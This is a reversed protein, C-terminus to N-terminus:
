STTRYKGTGGSPQYLAGDQCAKEIGHEVEAETADVEAKIDSPPVGDPYDGTNDLRRVASVVQPTVNEITADTGGDAAATAGSDGDSEGGVQPGDDDDDGGSVDVADGMPEETVVARPFELDKMIKLTNVGTCKSVGPTYQKVSEVYSGSEEAKEAFRDRYDQYDNLLDESQLDHDRAYKSVADFSRPLNIRLEEGPEGERVVDYHQAREVAGAAAARGFLEIFRDTHSKRKGEPGVRDVVHRLAGRLDDEDPLASLDAGVAEAFERYTEFGFIVIQLGQLELEDLSDGVGLDEAARHARELASYWRERVTDIDTGLVHRYYALGHDEPTPADDAVTIEGDDDVRAVGTLRKFEEATETGPDTTENRFQTMISRRREAPGQIAQEGSVVCPAEIKYSDTSKDANGREAYAGRNAKRLLDHFRDLKYQQIDSPKYEDFWLPISSTSSFTALHAFASSDVSFPEGGMGFCRWLYGLTATKGSGTGGTVNLHNFESDESLEAILPRFPATYYWGLVPLLRNLDRTYPLREVIEAVDDTNVTGRDTPLSVRREAGIERELYVTSPDDLWGDAGLTGGTVAFEDGHVGMHRVGQRTPADQRHVWLRLADLLEPVPVPSGDVFPVDFTTAFSEGLIEDDFRDKQNFVTPEVDKSFTQGSPLQVEIDARLPGREIELYSRVDIEFNLLEYRTLPTGSLYWTKGGDVVIPGHDDCHTAREAHKEVLHKPTDLVSATRGALEDDLGDGLEAVLDWMSQLDERSVDPDDRDEYRGVLAELIVVMEDEDRAASTSRSAPPDCQETQNDKAFAVTKKLYDDRENVKERSRYQQLINKIQTDSFRWFRLKIAASADYESTSAEIDQVTVGAPELDTLLRDLKDDWDRIRSLPTDFENTYEGGSDDGDDADEFKVDDESVAQSTTETDASDAVFESHVEKLASNFRNVDDASGEVQDGTYTMYRTTEYVEVEAEKQEEVWQPLDLTRDQHQRRRGEPLIGLGFIRFGTGSPSVETYSDLDDIIEEAWPEVDGTEPHRCGDLDVGVVMGDESLMYGVGHTHADGREHYDIAQDYSGWTDPDNSRAYWEGDVPSLPPKTKDEGCEPCCDAERSLEAGCDDDRCYYGWCVWQDNAKLTELQDRTRTM